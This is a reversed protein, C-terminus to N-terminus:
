FFDSVNLNALPHQDIVKVLMSDFLKLYVLSSSLWKHRLLEKITYINVGSELLYLAYSHRLSHVSLQYLRKDDETITSAEDILNGFMKQITSDHLPTVGKDDSFVYREAYDPLHKISGYRFKVYQCLIELSFKTIKCPTKFEKDGKGRVFIEQTQPKIDGIQLLCLENLRVGTGLFTWLITFNRHSERGLRVLSLLEDIQVNTFARPLRREDVEVKLTRKLKDINAEYFHELVTRLFSRLFSAKKSRTNKNRVSSLYSSLFQASCVSKFDPDQNFNQDCYSLFLKMEYRYAVQSATALETFSDSLYYFEAADQLFVHGTPRATNKAKPVWDMQNLAELFKLPGFTEAIDKIKEELSLDTEFQEDYVPM